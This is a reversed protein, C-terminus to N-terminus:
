QKAIIKRIHKQWREKQEDMTIARHLDDDPEKFQEPSRTVIYLNNGRQVYVQENDAMDIYRNQNTGFEKINVVTM